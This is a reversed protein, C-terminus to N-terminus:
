TYWVRRPRRRFWRRPPPPVDGSLPRDRDPDDRWAAEGPRPARPRTWDTVDRLAATRRRATRRRRRRARLPAVAWLALAAAVILVVIALAPSM